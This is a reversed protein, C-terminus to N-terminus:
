LFVVQMDAKKRYQYAQLDLTDDLSDALLVLCWLPPQAQSSQGTAGCLRVPDTHQVLVTNYM